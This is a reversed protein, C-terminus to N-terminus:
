QNRPRFARVLRSLNAVLRRKEAGTKTSQLGYRLDIYHELVEKASAKSATSLKANSHTLTNLLDQPGDCSEHKVGVRVLKATFKNFAAVAPDTKVRYLRWMLPASVLAGVLLIGALAPKPVYKALSAFTLLVVGVAVASLIGSFRSFAGAQYNIASRSLSGSGPM